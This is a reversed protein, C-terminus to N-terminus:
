FNCPRGQKIHTEVCRPTDSNCQFSNFAHRPLTCVTANLIHPYIILMSAHREQYLLLALCGPTQKSISPEAVM